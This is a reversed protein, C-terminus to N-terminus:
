GKHPTAALAAATDQMSLASHRRNWLDLGPYRSSLYCLCYKDANKKVLSRLSINDANHGM